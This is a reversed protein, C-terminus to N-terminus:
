TSDSQKFITEYHIRKGGHSIIFNFIRPAVPKLFNSVSSRDFDKRISSSVPLELTLSILLSAILMATILGLMAGTLRDIWGLLTMRILKQVALALFHFGVIGAIFVAVFSVVLAPSYPISTRDEVYQALVGAFLLALIFSVILGALELVQRLFGRRYGAVAGIVLIVVLIANIVTVNVPL